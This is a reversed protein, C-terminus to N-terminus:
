VSIATLMAWLSIESLLLGWWCVERDQGDLIVFPVRDLGASDIESGTLTLSLGLPGEASCKSYM